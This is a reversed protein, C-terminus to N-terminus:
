ELNKTHNETDYNLLTHEKIADVDSMIITYFDNKDFNSKKQLSLHFYIFSFQISVMIIWNFLNCILFYRLEWKTKLM